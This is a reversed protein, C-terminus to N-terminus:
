ALQFEPLWALAELLRVAKGDAAGEDGVRVL